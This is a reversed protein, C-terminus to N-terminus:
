WGRRAWRRSKLQPPSWLPNPATKGGIVPGTTAGAAVSKGKIALSVCRRHVLRWQMRLVRPRETKLIGDDACWSNLGNGRSESGDTASATSRAVSPADSSNRNAVLVRTRAKRRKWLRCSGPCWCTHDRGWGKVNGLVFRYRDSPTGGARGPGVAVSCEGRGVGVSSSACRHVSRERVCGCPRSRRRRAPVEHRFLLDFTDLSLANHDVYRYRFLDM